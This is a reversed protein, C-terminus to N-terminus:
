LSATISLVFKSHGRVPSGESARGDFKILDVGQTFWQKDEMVTSWNVDGEHVQSSLVERLVYPNNELVLWPGPPFITVNM